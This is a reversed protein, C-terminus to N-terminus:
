SSYRPIPDLDPEIFTNKALDSFLRQKSYHTLMIQSDLLRDNHRIFAHASNQADSIEMFHRVAMMWAQTLTEHYKTSDIARYNLFNKISDRVRNIAEGVTDDVLYIYALQIHERHGLPALFLGTEFEKQFERDRDSTQHRM